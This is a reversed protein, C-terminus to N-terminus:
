LSSGSNDGEIKGFLWGNEESPEEQQPRRQQPRRQQPRRQQQQQNYDNSSRSQSGAGNILSEPIRTRHYLSSRVAGLDNNMKEQINTLAKLVGSIKPEHHSRTHSRSSSRSSSRMPSRSLSSSRSHSGSNLVNWMSEVLTSSLMVLLVAPLVKM